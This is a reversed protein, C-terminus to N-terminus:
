ITTKLNAKLATSKMKPLKWRKKILNKVSDDNLDSQMLEMTMQPKVWKLINQKSSIIGEGQSPQLIIM